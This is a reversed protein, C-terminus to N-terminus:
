QERHRYSPVSPELPKNVLSGGGEKGRAETMHRAAAQIPVPGNNYAQHLMVNVGGGSIGERKIHTHIYIM